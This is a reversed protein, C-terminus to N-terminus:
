LNKKSPIDNSPNKAEALHAADFTEFRDYMKCITLRGDLYMRKSSKRCYNNKMVPFRNIHERILPFKWDSTKNAPPHKGRSDSPSGVTIGLMGRVSMLNQVTIISIDLTKRFIEMYEADYVLWQCTSVEPFNDM